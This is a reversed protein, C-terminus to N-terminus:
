LSSSKYTLSVQVIQLLPSVKRFENAIISTDGIFIKLIKNNTRKHTADAAEDLIKNTIQKCGSLDLYELNSNNNVLACMGPDYLSHCNQCILKKLNRTGELGRDTVKAMNNMILQELQPITAVASLGVNTIQPIGLFSISFILVFDFKYPIRMSSYNGSIDLSTLKTCNSALVILFDDTVVNNESVNLKQLNILNTISHLIEPHLFKYLLAFKGILELTTLSKCHTGIAKILYDSFCLCDKISLSTLNKCKSLAQFPFTM